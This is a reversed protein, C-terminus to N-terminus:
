VVPQIISLVVYKDYWFTLLLEVEQQTKEFTEWIAVDKKTDHLIISLFWVYDFV